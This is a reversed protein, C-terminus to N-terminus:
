TDPCSSVHPTGSRVQRVEDKVDDTCSCKRWLEGGRHMDM